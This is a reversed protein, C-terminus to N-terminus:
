LHIHLWRNEIRPLTRVDLLLIALAPKIHLIDLTAVHQPDTLKFNWIQEM